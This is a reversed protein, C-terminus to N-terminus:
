SPAFVPSPSDVALSKRQSLCRRRCLRRPPLATRGRPRRRRQLPRSVTLNCEQRPRTRPPRPRVPRSPRAGGGQRRRRPRPSTPRRTRASPRRPRHPPHARPQLRDLHPQTSDALALQALRPRPHPGLRRLRHPRRPTTRACHSSRQSYDQRASSCCPSLCADLSSFSLSRPRALPSWRYDANCGRKYDRSLEDEEEESWRPVWLLGGQECRCGAAACEGEGRSRGALWRAEDEDVRKM